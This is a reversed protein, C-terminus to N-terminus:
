PPNPDRPAARGCEARNKVDECSDREKVTSVADVTRTMEHTEVVKKKPRAMGVKKPRGFTMEGTHM